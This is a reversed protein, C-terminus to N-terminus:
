FLDECQTLYRYYRYSSSYNNDKAYQGNKQCMKKRLIGTEWAWSGASQDSPPTHLCPGTIQGQKDTQADCQALTTQVKPNM